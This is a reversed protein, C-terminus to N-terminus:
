SLPRHFLGAARVCAVLLRHPAYPKDITSLRKRDGQCREAKRAPRERRHDRFRLEKTRDFSRYPTQQNAECNENKDGTYKRSPKGSPDNSPRQNGHEIFELMDLAEFEILDSPM